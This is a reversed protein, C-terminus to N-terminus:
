LYLLLLIWLTIVRFRWDVRWILPAPKVENRDDVVVHRNELFVRLGILNDEVIYNAFTRYSLSVM